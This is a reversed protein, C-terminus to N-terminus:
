LIEALMRANKVIDLRTDRKMLVVTDIPGRFM